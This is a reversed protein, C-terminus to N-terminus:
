YNSNMIPSDVKDQLTALRLLVVSIQAKTVPANPNFKGKEATLLGLKMAITVAGKNKIQAADKLATVDTDKAMFESLKEYKLLKTLWLALDGRTLTQEPHLKQTPAAKLFGRQVLYEVASAYQSDVPVDAFRPKEPTIYYNQGGTFGALLINVWDGNNVTQDPHILGDTEPKIIGYDFMIQLSKSAWHKKADAPLEGKQETTGPYVYQQELKGTVANVLVGWNDDETLQPMYVLKVQSQQLEGEVYNGGITAYQLEARIADRYLKLAEEETIKATLSDLKGLKDAPTSMNYYNTLKGEKDLNIQVASPQIPKGNYFQQFSYMYATDPSYSVTGPRDILKLSASANPFLKTVLDQAKTKAEAETISPKGATVTENTSAEGSPYSYSSFDLLEGTNADVTAHIQVGGLPSGNWISWTKRGDRDTSTSAQPTGELAEKSTVATVVAIAEEKTLEGGTHPKFAAASSSISSYTIQPFADIAQGQDDLFKGSKADIMGIGSVAVYGLRYQSTNTRNLYYDSGPVYALQLKLEKKMKEVAQQSTLSADPSPYEKGTGFGNYSTIKGNGDIVVGIQSNTAPIGNVQAQYSFSYQVPGFLAQPYDNEISKLQLKDGSKVSPSAQPIFQKAIKEAEERSIKAPYYSDEKPLPNYYTIIDGTIADIASDFGYSGNEVTFSWQITWIMDHSPPYQNPNGLDISTVEADKLDPFLKKFRAIAEEKSIKAQSEDLVGTSSASAGSSSAIVTTSSLSSQAANALGGFPLLSFALVTALLKGKMSRKM